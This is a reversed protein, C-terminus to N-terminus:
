FMNLRFPYYTIGAMFLRNRLASEGTPNGNIDTSIFEVFPTVSQNYKVNIAWKKSFAIELGAILSLDISNFSDIGLNFNDIASTSALYSNEIGALLILNKTFHIKGLLQLSLYDLNNKSLIDSFVISEYGKRNLLLVPEFSLRKILHINLSAGVHFLNLSEIDLFDGTENVATANNYGALIGLKLTPSFDTEQAFLSGSLFLSLLLSTLQLKM